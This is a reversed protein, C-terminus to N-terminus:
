CAFGDASHEPIIGIKGTKPNCVVAIDGFSIRYLLTINEEEAKIHVFRLSEEDLVMDQVGGFPLVDYDESEALHAYFCMEFQLDEALEALANKPKSKIVM